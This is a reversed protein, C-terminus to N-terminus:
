PRLGAKMTLTITHLLDFTGAKEMILVGLGILVFPLLRHGYRRIPAGVTPHHVLWYALMCWVATMLAFVSAILAVEAGSHVAFAPAYVAVNDGGNAFTVVAVTFLQSHSANQAYSELEEEGKEERGWLDVLKKIGIAIPAIGLLGTYASPIVLAVLAVVMSLLVLAGIGLYQGIVVNRSRFTPSAFFGVLVFLDDLDTAAFLTVGLACTTAPSTTLYDTLSPLM